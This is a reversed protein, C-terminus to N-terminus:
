HSNLCWVLWAVVVFEGDFCWAKRVAKELVGRFFARLVVFFGRSVVPAIKEAFNDRL